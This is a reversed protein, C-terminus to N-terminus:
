QFDPMVFQIRVKVLELFFYFDGKVPLHGTLEARSPPTL